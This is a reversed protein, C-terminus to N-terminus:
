ENHLVQAIPLRAAARAPILAGLVAIAVGAAVLLALLPGAWVRLISEAIRINAAEAILPVVLRHAAMGAPVGVLGGVAGLAAMSTVVMVVVQRPTMGVSKLMGLDRRRERTNLVVTHFVGLAAVGGLLVTLVTSLWVVTVAFEDTQQNEWVYLGPDAATVAALHGGVDTGPALEIQYLVEHNEYQHGPAVLDLTRWDTLFGLEPGPPGAMTEAVVTVPRQDGGRGLRVEDGVELGLERLLRSPGAVEGPREPWRGQVIQDLYGITTVDGRLFTVVVGQTQGAVPLTVNLSATVRATGPTARLLAEIEPDTRTSRIEGPRDPNARVRVQDHHDTAAAYRTVAGALGAAFTVTVVGLMVASLTLATRGPRAFPLGLGLSVARPLRTGSLWRQVRRGHGSARPASGASVAEAAPLRHARLAPVLAALLVVAPMGLLAALTVWWSIGVEGLGLGRFAGDLLLHAGAQGAATGVLCGAFGPVSVMTLYSAVVQRPTFGIAKLIGIHRLGSVVAGSVVNTVILVAVLLGLVGFTLLFPVYLGTGSVFSAKLALYSQAGLLAGAPLGSVLDDRASDLDASSAAATFRYLMQTATPELSTMQEPAVWADATQSLTHAYGVVTLTRGDALVLEVDLPLPPFGPPPPLDNLVIEGPGTAWRGHWLDVRDVAGAPDDRGVVTLPRDGVPGPLDGADAIEIAVQDFPGATAAVAPSGGTAALEEPSVVAPDFVAVLHAGQQRDFARDFPASTAVLLGTAMVITATAALVVVGIVATQLRRRRVAARAATWVPSV